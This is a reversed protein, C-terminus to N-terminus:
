SLHKPKRFQGVIWLLVGLVMFALLGASWKMPQTYRDRETNLERELEAPNKQMLSVVRGQRTILVAEGALEDIRKPDSIINGFRKLAEDDQAMVVYLVSGAKYPSPVAQVLVGGEMASPLLHVSKQMEFKGGAPWVLLDKKVANFRETENFYGILVSSGADAKSSETGKTVGWSMPYRNSQGARAAVEAAVSLQQASPSASLRMTGPNTVHGDSTTMYPFNELYPRGLLKGPSLVFESTGEIVTWAIDDYVKSCDVLELDHYAGIEFTWSNKALESVPIKAILVGGAINSQDLRASGIPVNNLSVSLVSRRPFLSASHRFKFRILSEKGLDSRLPRKVTLTTRQQYSGALTMSPYGLERLTFTGMKSTEEITANEPKSTITASGGEMQAVLEPNALALRSYDMGTADGGSVGLKSGSVQLTGSGAAGQGAAVGISYGSDGMNVHIPLAKLPERKGWDSAIGFLTSLESATANQSVTWAGAVTENAIPDLYPFPYSYLPFSDMEKRVLHLKTSTLLRVWNGADDVDRCPGESTRQRTVVRIENYGTKTYKVPVPVVWTTTNAAVDIFRSAVPNGNLVVTMSGEKPLITHSTQFVVTMSGDAALKVGPMLKFYYFWTNSVMTLTRDEQLMNVDYNVMGVTSGKAAGTPAIPTLNENRMAEHTASDQPEESVNRVKSVFKVPANHLRLERSAPATAVVTHSHASHAAALAHSRATKRLAVKKGLHAKRRNLVPTISAKQVKTGERMSKSLALLHSVDLGAGSQAVASSGLCAALCGLILRNAHRM